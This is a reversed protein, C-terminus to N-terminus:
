LVGRGGTEKFVSAARERLTEMARYVRGRAAGGTMDMTKGARHRALILQASREDMAALEHALWDLRERAELLHTADHAIGDGALSRERMARRIDRRLADYATTATTRDLWSQLARADDLMPMRRIVKVMVEQVVDLCFHEDRKALHKARALLRDFHADYLSTFAAADGAAIAKTLELTSDPVRAGAHSAM